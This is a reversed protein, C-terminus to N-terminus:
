VLKNTTLWKELVVLSWIHMWKITKDGKIFSQWISKLTYPDFIGTKALNDISDQCYGKLDNRIWSDWPFSFGKKPRYVIQPPLLDGLAEVLLKKPISPSYKFNDPVHLLFEILHYDFFPERVELASAMSMQDTDKILVDLTYNSLEAITYQSLLPLKNVSTSNIDLWTDRSHQLFGLKEIEKRLYIARNSAYFTSLNWNAESFLQNLKIGARTHPLLPILLKAFHKTFFNNYKQFNTYQHFSHYGGFIEDGGLGSLAVKTGYSAVLKSVTYTNIGDTTPNDIDSFLSPLQNLLLSPSLQLETHKTQYRNAIIKAYESEDFEKDEFTISYTEIANTSQSAMAAVIASSDIGGSLFACVPVDSVMRSKVANFFLRRVEELTEHYTLGLLPKSNHTLDWYISTTFKKQTLYGYSGPSLQKINKLLTHPTKASQFSLFDIVSDNDLEKNLLNSAMISRIESSFIFIHNDHYYYFPKIGLRDRAIFLTKEYKDWIAFAFMGNLKEVCKVGWTIYAALIVETDSNSLWEYDSIKNRVEKYNYIEGNFVIVFRKTNDEFPQNANSSLDIISLRRHGLLINDSTFIGESDPGRHSLSKTVQQIATDLVNASYLNSFYVIGSIGCM